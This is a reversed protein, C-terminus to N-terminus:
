SKIMVLFYRDGHLICGFDFAKRGCNVSRSATMLTAFLCKTAAGVTMMAKALFVKGLM